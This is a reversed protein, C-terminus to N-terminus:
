MESRSLSWVASGGKLVVKGHVYVAGSEQLAGASEELHFIKGLVVTLDGADVMCALQILREASM